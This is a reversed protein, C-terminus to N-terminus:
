AMPASPTAKAQTQTQGQPMAGTQAMNPQAGSNMPGGQPMITTQYIETFYDYVEQGNVIGLLAITTPNLNEVIFAKQTDPIADLHAELNSRIDHDYGDDGMMNESAQAGNPPMDEGMGLAQQTQQMAPNGLAQM